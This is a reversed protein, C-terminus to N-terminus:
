KPVPQPLDSNWIDVAVKWLGDAGRKMVVLYKGKDLIPQGGEPEMDIQITGREYALDGDYDSDIIEFYLTKLGLFARGAEFFEKIAQKGSVIEVNPHLFTADDTYFEVAVDLDGRNFAAAFRKTVDRIDQAVM